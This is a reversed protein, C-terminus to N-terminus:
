YSKEVAYSVCYKGGKIVGDLIRTGEPLIKLFLLDKSLTGECVIGTYLETEFDKEILTKIRKIKEEETRYLLMARLHDDYSLNVSEFPNGASPVVHIFPVTGEKDTLLTATDSIGTLLGGVLAYILRSIPEPPSKPDLTAYGIGDVLFRIMFLEEMVKGSGNDGSLIYEVDAPGDEVMTDFSKLIYEDILLQNRIDIFAGELVSEITNGIKKGENFTEFPKQDMAKLADTKEGFHKSLTDIGTQWQGLDRDENLDELTGDKIDEALILLEKNEGYLATILDDLGEEGAKKREELDKITKVNDAVKDKIIDTVNGEGDGLVDMRNKLDTAKKFFDIKDLITKGLEIFGDIKMEELIQNKLRDGELSYILKVKQDELVLAKGEINELIIGKSLAEYERTEDLAFLGYQDRLGRDYQSLLSDCSTYLSENLINSTNKMGVIDVLAGLLIILVPLFITLSVTINGRDKNMMTDGWYFILSFFM